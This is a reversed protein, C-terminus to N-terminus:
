EGPVIEAGFGKKALVALLEERDCEPACEVLATAQNKNV